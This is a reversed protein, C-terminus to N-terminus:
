TDFHVCGNGLMMALNTRGIADIELDLIGSNFLMCSDCLADCVVHYEGYPDLFNRSQRARRGKGSGHIM